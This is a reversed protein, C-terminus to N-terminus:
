GQYGMWSRLKTACPPDLIGHAGAQLNSASVLFQVYRSLLGESCPNGGCVFATHRSVITATILPSRSFSTGHRSSWEKHSILFYIHFPVRQFPPQGWVSLGYTAFVQCKINEAVTLRPFVPTLGHRSNGLRILIITCFLALMSAVFM